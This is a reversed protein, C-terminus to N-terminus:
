EKNNNNPKSNSMTMMTRIIDNNDMHLMDPNAQHRFQKVKKKAEDSELIDEVKLADEMAKKASKAMREKNEELREEPTKKLEFWYDVIEKIFELDLEKRLRLVGEINGESLQM